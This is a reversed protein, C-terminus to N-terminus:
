IYTLQFFIVIIIKFLRYCVSYIDLTSYEGKEAQLRDVAPLFKFIHGLCDDNLIEISINNQEPYTESYQKNESIRRNITKRANRINVANKYKRKYM